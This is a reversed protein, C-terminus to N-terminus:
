NLEFIKEEFLRLNAYMYYFFNILEGSLQTLPKWSQGELHNFLAFGSLTAGFRAEKPESIINPNEPVDLKELSSECSISTLSFKIM